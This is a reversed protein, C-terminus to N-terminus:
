EAKISYSGLLSPTYYKMLLFELLCIHSIESIEEEASLQENM